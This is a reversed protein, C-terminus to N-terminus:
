RGSSEKVTSSVPTIDIIPQEIESEEALAARRRASMLSSTRENSAAVVEPPLHHVHDHRVRGEIEIKSSAGHLSPMQSELVKMGVIAGFKGGKEAAALTSERIRGMRRAELMRVQEDFDADYCRNRKDRLSYVLDSPVGSLECAMEIRGEAEALASYFTSYWETTPKLMGTKGDRTWMSLAFSFRDGWSASKRWKGIDDAFTGPTAAGSVDQSALECIQTVTMGEKIKAVVNEQNWWSPRPVANRTGQPALIFEGPQRRRPM